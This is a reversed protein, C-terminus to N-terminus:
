KATLLMLQDLQGNFLNSDAGGNSGPLHLADGNQWFTWTKWPPPVLPSSPGYEAVWLKYKAFAANLSLAQAFYPGCYIIPVMCTLAELKNLMVLLARVVAAAPEGDMTELDVVPPLDGTQPKGTVSFM